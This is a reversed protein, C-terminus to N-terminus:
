FIYGPRQPTQAPIIFTYYQEHTQAIQAPPANSGGNADFYLSYIFQPQEQWVAYLMTFTKVTQMKEGPQYEPRDADPSKAWGLFIYGSRQPIKDSLQFICGSIGAEISQVAPINEAGDANYVLTYILKPQEQWVAYLINQKNITSFIDGSFINQRPPM